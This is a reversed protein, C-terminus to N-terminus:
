KRILKESFLPLDYSIREAAFQVFSFVVNFDDPMLYAYDWQRGCTRCFLCNVRANPKASTTSVDMNDVTCCDQMENTPQLMNKPM